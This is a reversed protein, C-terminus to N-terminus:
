LLLKQLDSLFIVLQNPTRPVQYLNLRGACILLGVTVLECQPRRLADELKELHYDDEIVGIMCAELSPANTGEELNSVDLGGM